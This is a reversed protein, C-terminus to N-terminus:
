FPLPHGHTEGMDLGARQDAAGIVGFLLYDGSHSSYAAEAMVRWLTTMMLACGSSMSIPIPPVTALSTSDWATIVETTTVFPPGQM